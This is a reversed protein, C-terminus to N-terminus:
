LHPQFVVLFVTAILTIVAVSPVGYRFKELRSVRTSLDSTDTALHERSARTLELSGVRGELASLETSDAKRELERSLRDVIRLELESLEARLAERSVTIREEGPAM